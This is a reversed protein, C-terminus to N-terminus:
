ATATAVERSASHAIGMGLGAIFLAACGPLLSGGTFLAEAIKFTGFGNAGAAVINAIEVLAVNETAERKRIDQFARLTGLIPTTGIVQGKSFDYVGRALSVIDSPEAPQPTLEQDRSVADVAQLKSYGLTKHSTIHM